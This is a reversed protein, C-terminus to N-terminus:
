ESWKSFHKPGENSLCTDFVGCVFVCRSVCTRTIKKPHLAIFFRPNFTTGNTDDADAVDDECHNAVHGNNDNSVM